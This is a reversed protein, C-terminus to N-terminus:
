YVTWYNDEFINTPKYGNFVKKFMDQCRIKKENNNAKM